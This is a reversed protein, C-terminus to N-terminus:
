QRLGVLDRKEVIGTLTLLVLLVTFAGIFALLESFSGVFETLPQVLDYNSLLGNIVNNLLLFSGALLIPWGNRRDKLFFLVGVLLSIVLGTLAATGFRYFTEPGEIKFMPVWGLLAFFLAIGMFLVATSLMFAGHVARRKKFIFAMLILFGLELTGMVNQVFLADGEGSIVGKHASHVALLATSAFLMPGFFLVSLGVRKHNLYRKNGILSLQILLISLWVFVSIVHLVQYRTPKADSGFFINWFGAISLLTVVVVLLYEFSYAKLIKM